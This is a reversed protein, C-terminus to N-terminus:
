PCAHSNPATRLSIIRIRNLFKTPTPPLVGGLLLASLLLTTLLSTLVAWTVLTIYLANALRDLAPVQLLAKPIM